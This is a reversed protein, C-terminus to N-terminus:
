VAVGAWVVAANSVLLAHVAASYKAMSDERVHALYEQKHPLKYHVLRMETLPNLTHMSKRVALTVDHVSTYQM